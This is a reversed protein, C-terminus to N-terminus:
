EDDWSEREAKLYADVAERTPPVFGRERQGQHIKALVEKLTAKEESPLIEVLVRVRAQTFPLAEDLKLTLGDVVAGTVIYAQQM